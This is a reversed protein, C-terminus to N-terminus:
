DEYNPEPVVDISIPVQLFAVAPDAELTELQEFPVVALVIGASTGRVDGNVREVAAMAADESDEAVVEVVVGTGVLEVETPPPDGQELARVTERLVGDSLAPLSPEPTEVCSALLIALAALASLRIPVLTLVSPDSDANRIQRSGM